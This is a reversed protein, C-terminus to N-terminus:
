VITTYLLRITTQFNSPSVVFHIISITVLSTLNRVLVLLVILNYSWYNCFYGYVIITLVFYFWRFKKWAWLIICTMDFNWFQIKHRYRCFAIVISFLFHFFKISWFVSFHFQTLNILRWSLCIFSSVSTYVIWQEHWLRHNM